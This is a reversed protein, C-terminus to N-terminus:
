SCNVFLIVGQVLHAVRWIEMEKCCWHINWEGAWTHYLNRSKMVIKRTLNSCRM